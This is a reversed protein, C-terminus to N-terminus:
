KGEKSPSDVDRMMLGKISVGALEEIRVKEM